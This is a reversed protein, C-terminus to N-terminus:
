KKPFWEFLKTIEALSLGDASTYFDKVHEKVISNDLKSYDLTMFYNVVEPSFRYKIVKAPVGGVIAYPPVDKSVLAGSAIVAGQGIKVGSLITAGDGVWVDNELVIDGKSIGETSENMVKVKFPFTSVTDVRHDGALIFQVSPAISCFEGIKLKHKEGFDIVNIGGYSYRGVEVHDIPFINCPETTNHPNKNRWEKRMTRMALFNQIKSM